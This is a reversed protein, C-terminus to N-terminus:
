KALDAALAKAGVADIWEAAYNKQLLQLPIYRDYKERRLAAEPVMEALTTPDPTPAMSIKRLIERLDTISCNSVTSYIVCDNKNVSLGERELMLELSIKKACGAKIFILADRGDMQLPERGLNHATYNNRAFVLLRKAETDLFDPIKRSQYIEHMTAVVKDHIPM